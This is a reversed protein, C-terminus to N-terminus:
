DHSQEVQIVAMSPYNKDYKFFVKNRNSPSLIRIIRYRGEGLTWSSERGDWNEGTYKFWLIKLSEIRYIAIKATFGGSHRDKFELCILPKTRDRNKPLQNVFNRMFVMLDVKPNTM